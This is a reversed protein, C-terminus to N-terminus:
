LALEEKRLRGMIKKGKTEGAEWEGGKKRGQRELETETMKKERREEREFTRSRM